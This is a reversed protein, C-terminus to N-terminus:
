ILFICYQSLLSSPLSTPLSQNYIRSYSNTYGFDVTQNPSFSFLPNVDPQLHSASIKVLDHKPDAILQNRSPFIKYDKGTLITGSNHSVLESNMITDSQNDPFFVKLFNFGFSFILALIMVTPVTIISRNIQKTM